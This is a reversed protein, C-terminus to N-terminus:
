PGPSWREWRTLRGLTNVINYLTASDLGTSIEDLFLAGRGGVLMEALTVRKREGGSVGSCCCPCPLHSSSRSPRHDTSLQLLRPAQDLGSMGM